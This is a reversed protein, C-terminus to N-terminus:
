NRIMILLALTELPLKQLSTLTKQHINIHYRYQHM